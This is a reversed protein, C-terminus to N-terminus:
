KFWIGLQRLTKYATRFAKVNTKLKKISTAKNPVPLRQILRKTMTTQTHRERKLDGIYGGIIKKLWGHM